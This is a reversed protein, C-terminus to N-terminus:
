EGACATKITAYLIERGYLSRATAIVKGDPGIITSFGYGFWNQRQDVSWNAGIIYWNRAFM